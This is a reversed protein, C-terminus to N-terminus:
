ALLIRSREPLLEWLEMAVPGNAFGGIYYPSRYDGTGCQHADTHENFAKWLPEALTTALADWVGTAWDSM